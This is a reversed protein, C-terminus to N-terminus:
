YDEADYDRGNPHMIGDDTLNEYIEELESKSMRKLENKDEGLELLTRILEDKLM